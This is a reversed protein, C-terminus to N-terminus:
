DWYFVGAEMFGYIVMDDILKVVGYQIVILYTISFFHCYM